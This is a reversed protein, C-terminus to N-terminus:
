GERDTREKLFHHFTRRVKEFCSRQDRVGYLDMVIKLAPISLDIVQGMGATIAQNRVVMYVEAAEKNSPM